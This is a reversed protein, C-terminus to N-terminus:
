AETTQSSAPQAAGRALLMQMRNVAIPPPTDLTVAPSQNTPPTVVGPGSSGVATLPATPGATSNEPNLKFGTDAATTAQPQIHLQQIRAIGDKPFLIPKGEIPERPKSDPIDGM